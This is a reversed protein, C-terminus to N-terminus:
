AAEQLVRMAARGIHESYAPPIAESLEDRSMWDIGMAARKEEISINRGFKRRHWQPTGHGLVPVALGTHACSLALGPYFSCEFFRHRVVALGFMSGCLMLSKRLPAGPVNEIVTLAVVRALRQRVPAILDPHNEATGMNRSYVSFRQCPPSAWVFDYGEIPFELADGQHFADGCYNPQPAIDVGTV